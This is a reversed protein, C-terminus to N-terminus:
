TSLMKARTTSDLDLPSERLFGGWEVASDGGSLEALPQFRLDTPSVFSARWRRKWYVGHMEGSLNTLDSQISIASLWVYGKFIM